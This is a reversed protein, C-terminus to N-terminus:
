SPPAEDIYVEFPRLLRRLIPPPLVAIGGHDRGLPRTQSGFAGSAWRKRAAARRPLNLRRCDAWPLDDGQPDAWHWAWVLYHLLETGTVRAAARAAIGCANHDPHGDLEWPAICLTGPTLLGVVADAVRDVHAGVDGDPLGLRSISPARWGLRCLARRCEEARLARLDLRQDAVALPHSGEGDTVAVIDVPVGRVLLYQVLGGAGFVEDDPHPSVVVVRRPSLPRLLPLDALRPSSRWKAEPTGLHGEDVVLDMM